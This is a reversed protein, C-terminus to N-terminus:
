IIEDKIQDSCPHTKLDINATPQGYYKGGGPKKKKINNKNM